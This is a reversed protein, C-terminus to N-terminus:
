ATLRQAMDAYICVTDFLMDLRCEHDLNNFNTKKSVAISTRNGSVTATEFSDSDIKIPRSVLTFADPHIILSQPRQSGAAGSVVTIAANDAPAADVTQWQGTSIIAPSIELTAQGSGNSDADARVVFTQLRGTSVRTLPNVAHVGAITFVDGQKLLGTVSNSWGDTVLTQRNLDGIKKTSDIPDTGDYQVNQNAGNVLPTGAHAGVTHVPVHVSKYNMLGGYEGIAVKELATRAKGQVYVNKLTDALELSTTTNHFACRDDEPVAHDTMMADVLGLSKFTSPVTGATGSFHFVHKYLMGIETEVRNKLQTVAPRIIDQQVRQDTIELTRQLATLKFKITETKKLTVPINADVIDENYNTIDLNNSQGVFRQPRRVDVTDGVNGFETSFNTNVKAAMVLKNELQALVERAIAKPTLIRNAM